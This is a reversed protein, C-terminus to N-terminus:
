RSHNYGTKRLSKRVKRYQDKIRVGTEQIKQELRVVELDTLPDKMQEGMDDGTIFVLKNDPNM